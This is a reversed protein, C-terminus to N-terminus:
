VRKKLNDSPKFRVSKSARITISEGTRPNRGKRRGRKVVRFTGFGQLGFRRDKKLSRAIARTVADVAKKAQAANCGTAKQIAESLVVKSM